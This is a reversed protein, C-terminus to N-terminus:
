KNNNELLRLAIVIIIFILYIINNIIYLNKYSILGKVIIFLLRLRAREPDYYLIEVM